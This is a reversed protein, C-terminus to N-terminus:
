KNPRGVTVRKKLSITPFSDTEKPFAAWREPTVPTQPSTRWYGQMPPSVLPDVALNHIHM